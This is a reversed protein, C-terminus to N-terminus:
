EIRNLYTIKNWSLTSFYLLVTAHSIEEDKNKYIEATQDFNVIKFRSKKIKIKKGQTAKM